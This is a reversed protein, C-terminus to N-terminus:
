FFSPRCSGVRKKKLSIVIKKTTFKSNRYFDYMNAVIEITIFQKSGQHAALGDLSLRFIKLMFFLSEELGVGDSSAM